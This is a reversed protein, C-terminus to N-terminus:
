EALAGVICWHCLTYDDPVGHIYLQRYEWSPQEGHCVPTWYCEIYHAIKGQKDLLLTGAYYPDMM